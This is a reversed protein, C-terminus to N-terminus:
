LLGESFYLVKFKVYSLILTVVKIGKKHLCGVQNNNTDCITIPKGRVDWSTRIKTNPTSGLSDRMENDDRAWFQSCYHEVVQISFISRTYHFLYMTVSFENISFIAKLPSPLPAFSNPVSQIIEARTRTCSIFLIMETIYVPQRRSFKRGM